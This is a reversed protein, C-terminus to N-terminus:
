PAHFAIPYTRSGAGRQSACGHPVWAWHPATQPWRAASQEPHGPPWGDLSGCESTYNDCGSVVALDSRGTTSPVVTPRHRSAASPCAMTAFLPLSESVITAFSARAATSQATRHSARSRWGAVAEEDRWFSLSLLKDPDTLSQFREVSVFGDMRELENRLQAAHELYDGKRGDAPLVEFIVAIM